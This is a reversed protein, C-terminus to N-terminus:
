KEAHGCHDNNSNTMSSKPCTCFANSFAAVRGRHLGVEALGFHGLNVSKFVIDDIVGM